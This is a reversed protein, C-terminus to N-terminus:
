RSSTALCEQKPGVRAPLVHPLRRAVEALFHEATTRAVRHLAVADAAAGIFSAPPNYSGRLLLLADDGLTEMRLQGRFVPLVRDVAVVDEPEPQPEWTVSRWAADGARWV